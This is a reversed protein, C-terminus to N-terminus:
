AVTQRIDGCALVVLGAALINKAANLDANDQYQCETCKFESQTARNQRDIHGCQSCKLSTNMAEVCIVKGGRWRHKYELQRRFEYWGQDLIARNLGSKARVNKGPADVTGKASGNMNKVRLDELVIVAHSKSIESTCKHLFDRRIDAIKRHIRAVRQKQKQWNRSFKKKRSM